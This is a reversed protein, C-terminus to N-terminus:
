YLIGCWTDLSFTFPKILMPIKLLLWLPKLASRHMPAQLLTSAIHQVITWYLFCDGPYYIKSLKSLLVTASWLWKIQLPTGPHCEHWVLLMYRPYYPVMQQLPDCISVGKVLVFCTTNGPIEIDKMSSETNVKVCGARPLPASTNLTPYWGLSSKLFVIIVFMKWFYFYANKASQQRIWTPVRLMSLSCSLQVSTDTCYDQVSCSQKFWM